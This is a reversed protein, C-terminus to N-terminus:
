TGTSAWKTGRFIQYTRYMQAFLRDAAEPKKRQSAKLEMFEQEFLEGDLVTFTEAAPDFLVAQGRIAIKNIMDCIRQTGKKDPQEGAVAGGQFVDEDMADEDHPYDHLFAPLDGSNTRPREYLNASDYHPGPPDM